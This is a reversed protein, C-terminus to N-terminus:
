DTYVETVNDSFYPIFLNSSETPLKCGIDVKWPSNQKSSINVSATQWSRVAKKLDLAEQNKCLVLLAKRGFVSKVM